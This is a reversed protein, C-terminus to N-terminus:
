RLVKEEGRQLYKVGDKLIETVRAETIMRVGKSQLRQILLSRRPSLDDPMMHDLMELVTVRTGKPNSDDVPHAMFDATECGTTGGRIVLVKLGPMVRGMLVDWSCVVHDQDMGPIEASTAPLGGTAVVISDPRIEAVVEPTVEKNLEVSVGAQNVQNALYQVLCTFEQKTPPFSATLFQGGPASSKEMLTVQHGRLAAVRAAELGGPGGGAVLIKKPQNSAILSAESERGATYNVLCSITRDGYLSMLCHLDGVCPAIEGWRGAAAKKPFDPDALLARGMAVMDAKGTKLVDEAVWPHIIRGVSIVPVRVAEKVAASLAANVAAHSGTPPEVVWPLNTTGASIQLAEVGAEELIPAIYRTEEITRGGPEVEAGSIRMLIPFESGVRARIHRVVELVLRLRGHIDGGYADTRKNYLPSLFSALLHHCHACHIQVADCGAERARCAADGFQVTIKEIEDIRLERPLERTRRSAIPSAAMTQVGSFALRANLSPHVLQPAIRAGHAHIARTLDKWPGISEDDYLGLGRRNYRAKGDVTVDGTLILGVGGRARAAFFEVLSPTVHGSESSLNASMPAMVLRNKVEMPGIRIPTFLLQLRKM